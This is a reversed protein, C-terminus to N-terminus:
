PLDPLVLAHEMGLFALAQETTRFVGVERTSLPNLERYSQYMRGLGFALDDPAVIAMRSRIATGDMAASLAALDRVRGTSPVAIETARTMDILENFGAVDPRSWVEHQYGFVDDDTIIGYGAAVVVRSDRDVRYAMPM